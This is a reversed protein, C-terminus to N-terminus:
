QRVANIGKGGVGRGSQSRKTLYTKDGDSLDKVSPTSVYVAYLEAHADKAIKYARRLLQPAYPTPGICVMVREGAPWPGAIAKSKMYNLLETDMKRAVLTLTLERLAVLNGRQFYNEMAHKAREPIYVKGEKLRLSLEELPIDIVQVEDSAELISDPVTEHVRVGTIKAVVDVQSEFHQINITTYVDIGAALIEEVDQYRKPHRSEPANTHALEDVLVM